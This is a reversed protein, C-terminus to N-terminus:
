IASINKFNVFVKCQRKRRWWLTMESGDTHKLCHKDSVANQINNFYKIVNSSLVVLAFPTCIFMRWWILVFLFTWFRVPWIWHIIEVPLHMREEMINVKIKICNSNIYISINAPRFEGWNTILSLIWIIKQPYCKKTVSFSFPHNFFLFM